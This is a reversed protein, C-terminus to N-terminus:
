HTSGVMYISFTEKVEQTPRPNLQADRLKTSIVFTLLNVPQGIFNYINWTFESANTIKVLDHSACDFGPTKSDKTVSGTYM